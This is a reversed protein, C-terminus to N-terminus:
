YLLEITIGAGLGLVTLILGAGVLLYKLFSETIEAATFCWFALALGILVGAFSLAKIRLSDALVFHPEPQIDAQSAADAWREERERQIDYGGDPKLYRPPFFAFQLGQALGWVERQLYGLASNRTPDSEPKLSEEYLLKGMENYRYFATYARYHEYVIVENAIAARQANIAATIGDFDANGARNNAVSGLCVAAAGLITVFAIMLSAFNKFRTNKKHETM